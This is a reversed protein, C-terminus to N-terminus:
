LHLGLASEVSDLFQALTVEPAFRSAHDLAKASCAAYVAPDDLRGLADAWADTNFTDRVLVGGDGVAEPIGGRDSAVCPIGSAAAEVFVRGFPEPWISPGM